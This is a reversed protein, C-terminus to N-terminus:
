TAIHVLSIATRGDQGGVFPILLTALIDLNFFWLGILKEHRLIRDLMDFLIFFCSPM